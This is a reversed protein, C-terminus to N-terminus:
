NDSFKSRDYKGGKALTTITKLVRGWNSPSVVLGIGNAKDIKQLNYTQLADATCEDDKKLELAIFFSNCCVVFDPTGRISVQQTKTFWIAHGTELLQKLDDRVKM